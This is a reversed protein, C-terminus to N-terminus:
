KESIKINRKIKNFYINSYQNLQQNKLNKIRLPLEKDINYDQEIEKKDVISLILFGAPTQIPTTYEGVKLNTLKKLIEKNISGENVWGIRGGTKSSDSESFLSATNEFGNKKISEKIEKFIKEEDGKKNVFYLIENLNYSFSLKKLSEIEKKVNEKNIKIKNHFKEYILQNWLAENSLKQEVDKLDIKYKNLYKIFYERNEM